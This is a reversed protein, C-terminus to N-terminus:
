GRDDPQFGCAARRPPLLPLDLRGDHVRLGLSLYPAVLPQPLTNPPNHHRLEHPLLPPKNPHTSLLKHLSFPPHHLPPQVDTEMAPKNRPRSQPPSKSPLHVRPEHWRRGTVIDPNHRVHDNEPSNFDKTEGAEKEREVPISNPHALPSFYSPYLFAPSANCIIM